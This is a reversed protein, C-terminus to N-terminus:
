HQLFRIQITVFGPSAAVFPRFRATRFQNVLCLSLNADHVYNAAEEVEAVAGTPLVSMRAVMLGQASPNMRLAQTYCRAAILELQPMAQQASPRPLSGEVRGLVALIRIRPANPDVVPVPRPPRVAVRSASESPPRSAENVPVRRPAVTDPSVLLDASQARAPASGALSVALAITRAATRQMRTTISTSGWSPLLGQCNM